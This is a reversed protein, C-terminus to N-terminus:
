MAVRRGGRVRSLSAEINRNRYERYWCAMSLALVLDDHERDRAEYHDHGAESVTGRFNKLEEVLVGADPLAASIEFRRNQLAVQASGVLDRKPVKWTGDPDLVTNYGGHILVPIIGLGAQRLMEQVATGANGKDFLLAIDKGALPSQRLMGAVENVVTQYPTLLPFRKLHRVRLPPNPPRGYRLNRKRAELLQHATMYDPSVWGTLKEREPGSGRGIDLEWGWEEEIWLPEEVIAVASHDASKGLDLGFYYEHYTYTRGYEDNYIRSM